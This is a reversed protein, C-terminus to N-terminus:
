SMWVTLMVTGNIEQDVTPNQKDSTSGDPFEWLWREPSNESTDTFSTSLVPRVTDGTNELEFM